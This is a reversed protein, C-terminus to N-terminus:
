SAKQKGANKNIKYGKKHVSEFLEIGNLKKKISYFFSRLKQEAPSKTDELEEKSWVHNILDQIEIIEGDSEYFATVLNIEKKTLSIEEDNKFLKAKAIDWKFVVDSNEDNIIWFEQTRRKHDIKECVDVLLEEVESMRMTGKKIFRELRLNIAESLYEQSDFASIMIIPVSENKERIKKAVEIGNLKPMEIDLIILDPKNNCYSIWAEEGDEALYVKEFIEDLFYGYSERLKPEDEAYLVTLDYTNIEKYFDIM